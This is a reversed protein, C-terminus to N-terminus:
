KKGYGYNKKENTGNVVVSLRKLRGQEYIDDLQRLMNIGTHNIRCVFITADAIRDLTFTDSVQGIPATDVIVYDYRRRLEEFLTEVRHSTLLEAPNPPIPGAAIMDLGEVQPVKAILSDISIDNASLYRTLGEKGQLGLYKALVPKRIDMGVLVVKKGMLALSAALNISIFSKGEGPSGSTLLVVKNAPDSLIFQLNARLLRFLEAASSNNGQVAVLQSGSKDICMEGLLPVSTANEVDSRTEIRNTILKRMFLFVPPIVLSFLAALLLIMKKKMGLPTSLMYASDVIVGKPYTNALMMAVEERRELLYIYIGQKLEQQRALDLYEREVVPTSQLKGTVGQLNKNMERIQVNLNDLTTAFSAMLNSRVTAIQRDLQQLAYNDPKASTLMQQRQMLLGNYGEIGGPISEAVGSVPIFSYENAPNKLFDSAMEILEKKTRLALLASEANAQKTFQIKAEEKLNVLGKKQKYNQIVEEIEALEASLIELRSDVFKQTLTNQDNKQAISRKNYQRTIENLVAKGYDPYPTNIGMEVVNSRKSAIESWVKSDLLEAASDYGDVAVTEKLAKGPEYHETTAIVFDGIPTSLTYPLEVNKAEAVTAKRIKANITALGKDNMKIKIGMSVTLTDLLGAPPTVSVPYDEFAYVTNMFGKRVYYRTGLGLEKAVQRYLSHSSIIFIEDYVFGDSGFLNGFASMSSKGGITSKADDQSILVNARVAYVPHHFKTYLFASGVCVVFSIAFLWWKHCYQRLLGNFDIFDSKKAM